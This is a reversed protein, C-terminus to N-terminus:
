GCVVDAAAGGRVPACPALWELLDDSALPPCLHYGQALRPGGVVSRSLGDLAELQAASEVGAAVAVVGRADALALIGAVVATGTDTTGLEGVLSRDIKIMTVTPSRLAAVGGGDRAGFDNVAVGVGLAAFGAPAPAGLRLAGALGAGDVEAVLRRPDVRHRALSATLADLGAPRLLREASLNVSLWQPAQSGLARDWGALRSVARDVVWEEIGALVDLAAADDLFEGPRLVRGDHRWRALSEVGVVRRDELRVVPQFWLDLEDRDLARRLAAERTRRGSSGPRVAIRPGPVHRPRAQKAQYMAQDAERLMDDATVDPGQAVAVGISASTDLVATAVRVPMALTAAVRDALDRAGPADLGTLVVVFEDGGLRSVTAGAPAAAELRRAVQRLLEDGVDHGRTDNVAKFGDLDAYLVAVEPGGAAREALAADLRDVLLSRNALGTLADHTADHRLIAERDRLAQEVRVRRGAEAGLLLGGSLSVMLFFQAYTHATVEDVGPPAVGAAKMVQVVAAVVVAFRAAGRITFRLAVWALAMGLVILVLGPEVVLAVGSALATVVVLGAVEVRQRHPPVPSTVSTFSCIFPALVMQGVLDGSWWAVWLPAATEWTPPWTLAPLVLTASVTTGVAAAAGWRAVDRVDVLRVQGGGWRRILGATVLPEVANALGLHLSTALPLGHALDLGTEAAVVLGLLVPWLRPPSLLLAGLTLGAAPFFAPTGASAIRFTTEALMPYGLAVLIVLIVARASPHTM